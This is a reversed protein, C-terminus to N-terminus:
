RRRRGMWVTLGYILVGLPLVIVFLLSLPAAASITNYTIELSKSPISFTSSQDMYATVANNFLTENGMNGYYVLVAENILSATFVTLTGDNEGLTSVAGLLYQGQVQETESVAYAGESTTLVEEVTVDDPLTDLQHFGRANIILFQDRDTLEGALSSSTNLQPAIYYYSQFNQYSREPDAIYGPALELGARALLSELNPMADLSDGVLALVHGGEELYTQLLEAEEQTLDATPANLLVLTADEPVSGEMLLNLDTVTLNAKVLDESLRSPLSEEGHGTLTYVAQTTESTVYNVASTLQGEADFASEYSYFYTYDFNYVILDSSALTRSRGTDACSVILSGAEAEYQSAQAPNAVPDVETVTIHDSLAQYRELFNTIRQDMTGEQALVVIEVDKDLGALFDKSTDSIAYLQASTLDVQRASAPLQGLLLNVAVVLVVALVTAGALYGRRGWTHPHKEM